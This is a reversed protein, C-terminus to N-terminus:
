PGSRAEGRLFELLNGMDEPPEAEFALSEGTRPHLFELRWAHLAQRGMIALARAAARRREPSIGRLAKQRGGYTPDGFVPHGRHAFHVRIQHTRGTELAVEALCAFPFRERLIYRSRAGKGDATVAMKKRDRRSRGVPADIVGEDPPGGWLVALYRRAVERREIAAALRGHAERNRAAVMLGSTEKDLRHVIGPREPAGLDPMSGFRGLLAHVLTGSRVGAGPHVVMGPPKNVVVIDGDEYRVDLPIAEPILWPPEPPPVEAEIREGPEVRHSARVPRGDVTVRGERILKQVFARSPMGERGTLWVDLRVAASEPPVTWSM